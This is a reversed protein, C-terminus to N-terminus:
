NEDNDKYTKLEAESITSEYDEIVPLTNTAYNLMEEISM